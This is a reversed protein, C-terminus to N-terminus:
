GTQGARGMLSTVTQRLWRNRRDNHSREHWYQNVSFRRTRFPLPFARVRNSQSLIRGLMEPVSAILETQEILYGLGLFAPLELEVRRRIGAKRLAEDLITHGTNATAVTLHGESEYHALSLAQRIRPHRDSVLCVFDQVFLTQRYFGAEIQPLSGIALDIDGNRLREPTDRRIQHAKIRIHPAAEQLHLWLGPLLVIHSIDTMSIVFRHDSRTPEFDQSFELVQNLGALAGRVRPYLEHMAATPEMTHRIRVFLPDKYYARLKGLAVSVAPQGMGLAESTGSVSRLEYLTELVQLLRRDLNM